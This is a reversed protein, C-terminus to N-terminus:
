LMMLQILKIPMPIFSLNDHMTHLSYLINIQLVFRESLVFFMSMMAMAMHHHWALWGRVQYESIGAQGKTEEFSREVFYRQAQVQALELSSYQNEPANSLSCKYQHVGKENTIRRVVLLEQGAFLKKWGLYLGKTGM